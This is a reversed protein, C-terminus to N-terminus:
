TILIFYVFQVLILLFILNKVFLRSRSLGLKICCILPIRHVTESFFEPCLRVFPRAFSRVAAYSGISFALGRFALGGFLWSGPFLFRLEPSGGGWFFFDLVDM